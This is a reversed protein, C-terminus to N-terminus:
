PRDPTTVSTDPCRQDLRGRYASEFDYAYVPCSLFVFVSCFCTMQATFGVSHAFGFVRGQREPSVIKQIITEKQIFSDPSSVFKQQCKASCFRYTTHGLLTQHPTNEDVTMGCVPDVFKKSDTKKSNTHNHHNSEHHHMEM